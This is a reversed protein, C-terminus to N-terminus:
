EIDNVAEAISEWDPSMDSVDMYDDFCLSAVTKGYADLVLFGCNMLKHTEFPCIQYIGLWFGTRERWSKRMLGGTAIPVSFRNNREELAKIIEKSDTLEVQPAEPNDIWAFFDQLIKLFDTIQPTTKKNEM